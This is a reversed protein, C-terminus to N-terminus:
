LLTTSALWEKISVSFAISKGELSSASEEFVCNIISDIVLTKYQHDENILTLLQNYIDDSSTLLPFADPMSENSSLCEFRDLQEESVM